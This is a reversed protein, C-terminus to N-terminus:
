AREYIRRERKSMDRASIIRISTDRVTFVLSLLRGRNTQGLAAYRSESKSHKEDAAVLVPRNFFVQESEGRSVKHREWNKDRNGADWEFGTCLALEAPLQPV